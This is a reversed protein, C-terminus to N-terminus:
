KDMWKKLLKVRESDYHIGQNKFGSGSKHIGIVILKGDKEIWLPSGSSGKRTNLKYNLIIEELITFKNTSNYYHVSARRPKWFEFWRFFPYGSINITKNNLNEVLELNFKRDNSKALVKNFVKKNDFKIVAFDNFKKLTDIEFEKPYFITKNVICKVSIKGFPSKNDKSYGPYISISDKGYVNHANTVISNENIMIGTGHYISGNKHMLLKVVYSYPFETPDIKSQGFAANSLFIITLILLIYKKM